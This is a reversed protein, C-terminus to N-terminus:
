LDTLGVLDAPHYGGNAMNGNGLNHRNALLDIPLDTGNSRGAGVRGTRRQPSIHGGPRQVTSALAPSITRRPHQGGSRPAPAIDGTCQLCGGGSMSGTFITGLAPRRHTKTPQPAIVPHLPEFHAAGAAPRAATRRSRGVDAHGPTTAGAGIARSSAGDCRTCDPDADEVMPCQLMPPLDASSVGPGIVPLNLYKGIANLFPADMQQPQPLSLLVALASPGADRGPGLKPFEGYDLRYAACAVNLDRLRSTCVTNLAVNRVRSILPLFLALLVALIAVCVLLEALTFGKRGTMLGIRRSCVM